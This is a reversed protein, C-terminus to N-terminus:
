RKFMGKLRAALARRSLQPARKPKEEAVKWQEPLFDAPRFLAKSKKQLPGNALLACLQAWLHPLSSPDAPEEDFYALWLGFEEATM